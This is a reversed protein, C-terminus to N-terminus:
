RYKRDHFYRKTNVLILGALALVGLAGGLILGPPTYRLEVGHEGEPLDLCLFTDLWVGTDTRAGDVYATWGEEAPITACLTRPADAPVSLRVRGNQEVSTVAVNDLGAAAAHLADMDLQWVQGQWGGSHRVTVTWAEGHAPTGLYHVCAAESSGLWLVREGNVLVERLGQASLDMYLPKGTGVLRLVTEGAQSEAEAAVPVFVPGGSGSLCSLLNNQREFPTSGFLTGEVAEPCFAIPLADPNKWLTLEGAQAIAEYGPPMDEGSIVYRVGLLADTVPTSGYYACWMWSQAFGLAKTLRNVDGNYLSSYHTIGPYGFALPSNHGRDEAAGMRFFEEGADERAAATLQANAAYDARYAAYSDSHFQNELGWLISKTNWGMELVSLCILVAAIGRRLAPRQGELRPAAQVALYVLVFSFLFSYRFPFWNPRQFLHWVKDLPALLLSATLAALLAGGALRERAPISKQFFYAVAWILVISGCFVFPPAGYTISGYQGPRLQELLALPSCALLGDYDVNGGSFKGTFMALFTPLWLWATLGLACAAGGFFRALIRGLERRGPWLVILRACLYLACFGGIMYSIYWTSFFCVTLAAIFPGAGQGALIRELTLLILPLWIVGDLWMICISYAANYSMLAYCVAGLLAGWGCEPFRRQAFLAFSLGALAIKLVTLLALGAPMQENPVFLTLLSLPSSVYYSFVGIYSTGLAKSWSFFLEGNKLACFFEVYQSSMDSILVTKDGFPAAGLAAYAWLMVLGPLVFALAPIAFREARSKM